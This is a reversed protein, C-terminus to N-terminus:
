KKKGIIVVVQAFMPPALKFTGDIFVCDTQRIISLLAERFSLIIKKTLYIITILYFITSVQKIFYRGFIFIRDPVNGSDALLFKEQVNNGVYRKM